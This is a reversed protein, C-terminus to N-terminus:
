TVRVVVPGKEIRRRCMVAADEVDTDLVSTEHGRIDHQRDTDEAHVAARKVDREHVRPPVSALADVLLTFVDTEGELLHVVRPVGAAERGVEAHVEVHAVLWFTDKEGHFEADPM